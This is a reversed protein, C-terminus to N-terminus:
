LAGGVQLAIRLGRVPASLCLTREPALYGLPASCSSAIPLLEHSSCTFSCTSTARPCRLQHLKLTAHALIDFLVENSKAHSNMELSADSFAVSTMSWPAIWTGGNARCVLETSKASFGLYIEARYQQVSRALQVVM